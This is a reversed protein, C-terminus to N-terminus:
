AMQKEFQIWLLIQLKLLCKPSINQLVVRMIQYRMLPTEMVWRRFKELGTELMPDIMFKFSEQNHAYAVYRRRADFEMICGIDTNHQKLETLKKRSRELLESYDKQKSLKISM